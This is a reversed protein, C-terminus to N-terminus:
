HGATDVYTPSSWAMHGDLQLVRVHYAHVGDLPESDVWSLEADLPGGDHPLAQLRLHAGLGKAEVFLPGDEIGALPQTVALPEAVLEIAPDTVEALELWLGDYDGATESSWRVRQGEGGILGEEPHDFAFPSVDHIRAGRVTLEGDWRQKRGRAIRLNGTWAVLVHAPDGAPTWRHVPLGDRYVAIEIIPATGNVWTGVPVAGSAAVEAGMRVGAIETEMLIRSGTTGHCHRSHLGHWIGDRTLEPSRICALGGNVPMENANALTAGPRGMHDDSGALFGVRVGTDLAQQLFWESTGHASHVEVVPELEPEIWRLEARRGGVHPLLMVDDRGRFRAYLEDLTLADHESDLPRRDEILWRGSRWIDDAKPIGRFIVNRDGGVETNGSWEYGHFCVFTGDEHIAEVERRLRAWFEDTIQFDNGQHCTFDACAAYRAYHFYDASPNTGVTEGSQGHLDGWWRREAPLEAGVRIPNSTARLGSTQDTLELRVVGPAGLAIGEVPIVPGSGPATGLVADSDSMGLQLSAGPMQTPNGWVDEFRARLTFPEGAKVDSPAVAKLRVAPGAVVPFTLFGDLDLFEQAGKCDVSVQFEFAKVVTLPARIGPSGGSTDGFTLELRDGPWLGGDDTHVTVAPVFPRRHGRENFRAVPRVSGESVTRVALYGPAAPDEFQPAGLGAQARWSVRVAGRDDVGVSGATYVIRFTVPEGAVAPKEIKLRASGLIRDSIQGGMVNIVPRPLHRM